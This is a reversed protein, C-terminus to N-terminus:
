GEMSPVSIECLRVGASWGGKPGCYTFWANSVTVMELHLVIQRERERKSRPVLEKLNTERPVARCTIRVKTGGFWAVRKRSKSETMTLGDNAEATSSIREIMCLVIYDSDVPSGSAKFLVSNVSLLHRLGILM